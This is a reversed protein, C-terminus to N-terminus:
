GNKSKEKLIIDKFLLYAEEALRIIDKLDYNMSMIRYKFFLHELPANFNTINELDEYYHKEVHQWARYNKEVISHPNSDIKRSEYYRTKLREIWANRMEPSSDPYLFIIKDDNDLSSCIKALESYVNYHCSICVIFGQRSLDLAVKCYTEQWNQPQDKDHFNSSELDIISNEKGSISSKGIGPYGIIIM